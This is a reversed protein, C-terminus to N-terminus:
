SLAQMTSDFAIKLTLENMELRKKIFSDSLALIPAFFLANLVEIDMEKFIGFQIGKRFLVLIHDIRFLCENRIDETMHNSQEFQAVVRLYAENEVFFNIHTFWVDYCQEMFPKAADISVKVANNLADKISMFAEVILEDKSDFNKYIMAESLNAIKAIKATTVSHLGNKYIAEITAQILREKSSLTIM